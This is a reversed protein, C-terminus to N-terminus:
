FNVRVTGCGTARNWVASKKLDFETTEVQGANPIIPFSSPSIDLDTLNSASVDRWKEVQGVFLNSTSEESYSDSEESFATWLQSFNRALPPKKTKLFYYIQGDPYKELTVAVEHKAGDIRM